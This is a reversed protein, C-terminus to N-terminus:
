AARQELSAESRGPVREHAPFWAVHGIPRDAAVAFQAWTDPHALRAAARERMAATDPPRWGPPMFDTYADFGAQVIALMVDVDEPTVPRTTAAPAMRWHRAGGAHRPM